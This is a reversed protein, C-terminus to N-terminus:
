WNNCRHARLVRAFGVCAAAAAWQGACKTRQRNRRHVAPFARLRRESLVRRSGLGDGARLQPAVSLPRMRSRPRCSTRRGRRAIRQTPGSIRGPSRGRQGRGRGRVAAGGAMAAVARDDRSGAAKDPRGRFGGGPDTGDFRGRGCGAAFGRFGGTRCGDCPQIRSAGGGSRVACSRDGIRVDSLQHIRSHSQLLGLRLSSSRM